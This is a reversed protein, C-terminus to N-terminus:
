YVSDFTVVLVVTFINHDYYAIPRHNNKELCPQKWVTVKTTSSM